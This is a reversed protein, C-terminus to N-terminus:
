SPSRLTDVLRYFAYTALAPVASIGVAWLEM